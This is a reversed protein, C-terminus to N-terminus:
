LTLKESVKQLPSNLFIEVPLIIVFRAGISNSNEASILGGLSAVIQKVQWLGIGSGRPKTTKFPEFIVDPLLEAPIGPGNDTVDVAIKKESVYRIKIEVKTGSGGAELSNLLLNELICLLLESDTKIFIPSNCQFNILLGQIRKSLKRCGNQLSQCLEVDQWVPLIEGNLAALRNQVKAMRKLSDDVTDLMDHQFEPDNIHLPANQRILSLMSAANKIDHLIFSAMIDWAERQRVRSLEEAMRVALLASATQAGLANLLDFDDQGYRGGTFEPGLGILGLMQEGISLPVSLVLNLESFFTRKKILLEEYIYAEDGDPIKSAHPKEETYYYHHTRLYSILPDDQSLFYKKEKDDAIGKSFVIHYGRKDDGLWIFVMNTYLSKELVRLLANVVDNETLIDQLLRSFALWEDRYEYKNTYFNTSIFFKVRHRVKGSFLMAMLAVLGAVFLLGKVVFPMPFGFFRMLMAILGMIIMYGGMFLPAIFAYIVKRSVYIKRNLLRHRIIAYIMLGWASLLLLSLLLFHDSDLRLYALRYSATWAMTGCVLYSGVVLFKYEWRQKPSLSRWFHELRWAMFSVSFFLFLISFFYIGYRPLLIFREEMMICYNRLFCCFATGTIALGIFIGAISFRCSESKKGSLAYHLWHSTNFWILSFVNESFFILHMLTSPHEHYALYLYEGSLLLLCLLSQVLSISFKRDNSKLRFLFLASILVSFNLTYFFVSM